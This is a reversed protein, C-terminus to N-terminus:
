LTYVIIYCDPFLYSYWQTIPVTHHPSYHPYLSGPIVPYQIGPTLVWPNQLWRWTLEGYGGGLQSVVVCYHYVYRYLLYTYEILIYLYKIDIPIISYYHGTLLPYYWSPFCYYGPVPFLSYIHNYYPYPPPISGYGLGGWHIYGIGMVM